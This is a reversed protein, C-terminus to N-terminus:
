RGCHICKGAMKAAHKRALQEYQEPHRERLAVLDICWVRFLKRTAPLDGRECAKRVGRETMKLLKATETVSLETLEHLPKVHM